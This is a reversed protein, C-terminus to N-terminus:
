NKKRMKALLSSINVAEEPTVWVQFKITRKDREMKSDAWKEVLKIFQPSDLFGGIGSM